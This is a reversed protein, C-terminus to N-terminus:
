ELKSPLTDPLTSLAQPCHDVGQLAGPGWSFLSSVLLAAQWRVVDSDPLYATLWFVLSHPQFSTFCQLAPFGLQLLQCLGPTPTASGPTPLTLPMPPAFSARPWGKDGHNETPDETKQAPPPGIIWFWSHRLKGARRSVRKQFCHTLSGLGVSPQPPLKWFQQNLEPSRYEKRFNEFVMSFSLLSRYGRLYPASMVEQLHFTMSSIQIRKERQSGPFDSKFGLVLETSDTAEM